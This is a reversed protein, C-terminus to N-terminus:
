PYGFLDSEVKKGEARMALIEGRAQALRGLDQLPDAVRLPPLGSQRSGLLDGPGRAQLDKEAIVFGDSTQELVALRGRAEETAAKGVILACWSKRHSRGIRGRLQHLQALGFSEANEVIMLTAEPVDVGVEVVTTAVLVPRRGAAFDALVSSREAPPMRGHLVGVPVGPLAAALREATDRTASVERVGEEIAPVVVYVREGAAARQGAFAYVRDRAEEERVRTIVAARGPPKEDLVSVDLEGYVAWALSRPIPTATMVLVHPSDGKGFLKARHAVGFRHQEDVVVLGLRRFAVPSEILAHTGVLLDLEGAALAAILHRRAPGRVRGTLLGMRVGAASLWSGLSEAHQEALIETPAMLASQAGNQAAILVALGAVVTKGSGVDGQLLRAMARGSALDDAIERVARKQAATLPFPLVYRALRKIAEEAPLVMGRRARLRARRDEIRAALVTLEERALQWVAAKAADVHDPFHATELAARIREAPASAAAFAPDLADLTRRVLTRWVRPAVDGVRRYVGVIRGTHVPDAAEDEDFMETEPNEIRMEGKSGPEPAGYLAARKGALAKAFSPYRNHWVVRVAGTGDDAVAEVRMTGRRMRTSRIGSFRVLV